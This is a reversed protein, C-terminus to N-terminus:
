HCTSCIKAQLRPMLIAGGPNDDSKRTERTHHPRRFVLMPYQAPFNACRLVLNPITLFYPSPERLDSTVFYTWDPRPFAGLCKCWYFQNYCEEFFLGLLLLVLVLGLGLVLAFALVLALLLVIVVVVVFCCCCWCWWWCCCCIWSLGVSRCHVCFGFSGSSGKEFPVSLGVSRSNPWFHKWFLSLRMRYM